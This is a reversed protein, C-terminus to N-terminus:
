LLIDSEEHYKNLLKKKSLQKNNLEPYMKVFPMLSNKDVYPKTIDDNELRYKIGTELDKYKYNGIDYLLAKKLRKVRIMDDYTGKEKVLSLINGVYIDNTLM